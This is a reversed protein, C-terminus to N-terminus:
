AVLLDEVGKETENKEEYFLILSIVWDEFDRGDGEGGVVLLLLLLLLVLITTLLLASAGSAVRGELGVIVILM